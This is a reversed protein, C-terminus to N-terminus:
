DQKSKSACFSLYVKAIPFKAQSKELTQFHKVAAHVLVLGLVPSPVTHSSVLFEGWAITGYIGTTM